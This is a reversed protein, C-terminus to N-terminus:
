KPIPSLMDASPSISKARNEIKDLKDPKLENSSNVSTAGVRQLRMKTKYYQSNIPMNHKPPKRKFRSKSKFKESENPINHEVKQGGLKTVTIEDVEGTMGRPFPAKVIVNIEPLKREELLPNPAIRENSKTLTTASRNTALGKKKAEEKKRAKVRRRLHKSLKLIIWVLLPLNVKIQEFLDTGARKMKSEYYYRLDEINKVYREEGEMALQTRQDWLEQLGKILADKSRNNYIKDLTQPRYISRKVLAELVDYFAVYHLNNTKCRYIRLQLMWLTIACYYRNGMEKEAAGLPEPLEYLLNWLRHYQMYGLGEPDYKKWINLFHDLREDSLVSESLQTIEIVSAVLIAMFINLFVFPVLIIFAVFYIPAYPVGCAIAGDNALTEEYTPYPICYFYQTKERMADHMIDVWGDFTSMRYITLFASGLNQFNAHPTLYGQLKVGAFLFIGVVAFVYMIVFLLLALNIVSPLALIFIQFVKRLMEIKNFLSYIKFVRFVILLLAPTKQSPSVSKTAITMGVLGIMIVLDFTNWNSDFYDRGYFLLKLFAEIVYVALFLYHCIESFEDFESSERYWSLCLLVGNLLITTLIFYHFVPHILFLYLKYFRCNQKYDKVPSAKFIIKSLSVWRRQASSLERLGQLKENHFYYTNSIMSTLLSRIFLFCFLMYVVPFWLNYTSVDRRPEHDVGYIDPVYAIMSYWSKGSFMEFLTLCAQLINDFGIDRTRWERGMNMCDYITDVEFPEETYEGVQEAGESEIEMCYYFREKFLHVGIVGFIVIFLLAIFLTQMIKPFGDVIAKVRLTFGQSMTMLRLIRLVRTLLLVKYLWTIQIESSDTIVGSVAALLDLVKFPSRLFSGPGNNILGYSIVEAIVEFCFFVTTIIDLIKAVLITSGHPDYLPTYYTLIISNVVIFLYSVIRFVYHKVIRHLTIRVINNGSFMNLSTGTLDNIIITKKKMKCISGLSLIAAYARLATLLTKVKNRYRSRKVLENLKKQRENFAINRKEEEELEAKQDDSFFRELVIAVFLNMIIINLVLVAIPFYLVAAKSFRTYEYSYVTWCDGIQITFAALLAFGIGDFNVRMSEGHELDIQHNANLKVRDGFLEMGMIAFLLLFLALLAAFYFIDLASDWLLSITETLEKWKGMLKLARM